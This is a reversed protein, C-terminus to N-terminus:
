FANQGQQRGFANLMRFCSINKRHKVLKHLCQCWKYRLTYNNTQRSLSEEVDCIGQKYCVRACENCVSMCSEHVM